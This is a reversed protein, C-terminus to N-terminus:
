KFSKSRVIPCSDAKVTYRTDANIKFRGYKDLFEDEYDGVRPRNKSTIEFTKMDVDIMLCYDIFVHNEDMGYVTGQSHGSYNEVVIYTEPNAKPIIENWLYVNFKDITIPVDETLRFTERDAVNLKEAGFFINKNDRAYIGNFFNGSNMGSLTEIRPEFTNPNAGKVIKINLDYNCGPEQEPLDTFYVNKSDTAYRKDKQYVAFFDGKTAIKKLKLSKSNLGDIRNCESEDYIISYIEGTARHKYYNGNEFLESNQLEKEQGDTGILKYAGMPAPTSFGSVESVFRSEISHSENDNAYISYLAGLAAAVVIGIFAQFRKRDFPSNKLGSKLPDGNM